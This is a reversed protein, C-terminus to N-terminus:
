QKTFVESATGGIPTLALTRDGNSFAYSNVLQFNQDLVFVLKGDKIDWTGSTGLISMSFTGDSFFVITGGTTTGLDKWTGVFKNKEPNVTNIIENCGSLGICVLLAVIGIIILLNRM